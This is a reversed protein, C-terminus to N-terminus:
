PLHEYPDDEFLMSVGFCFWLFFAAVGCYFADVSLPGVSVVGEGPGSRVLIFGMGGLGGVIPVVRRALDAYRKWWDM